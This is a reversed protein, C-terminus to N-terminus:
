QICVYVNRSTSKGNLFTDSNCSGYTNTITLAWYVVISERLLVKISSYQAICCMVLRYRKSICDWERNRNSLYCIQIILLRLVNNCQMLNIKQNTLNTWNTFYKSMRIAQIQIETDHFYSKCWTKFPIVIVYEILWWIDVAISWNIIIEM